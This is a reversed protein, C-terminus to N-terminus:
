RATSSSRTASTARSWASTSSLRPVRRLVDGQLRERRADRYDQPAQVIALARTPSRRCWTACGTRDCWTTATSSPSSQRRRARDARLAFNLAGAKFGALPAVHFFRFRAGLKQATSRSRAGCPKTARTTTSSSSKSTRTTSRALADLTEILMEPPENYAPVHISVKPLPTDTAARRAFCARSPYDGLAGRGMRASRRAARRDRRAHRADAARRGARQHGDPVAAFLRLHDLRCRHGHRLRRGRPLQPRAHAAHPQPFLLAVLLSRPWVCPIRRSCTGTRSHARDTRHVRVETNRDVDYVGWYAGVAGEQTAKWPQDFAEM